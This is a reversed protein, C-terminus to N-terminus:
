KQTLLFYDALATLLWIFIGTCRMLQSYWPKLFLNSGYTTHARRVVASTRFILLWGGYGLFLSVAAYWAVQFVPMGELFVYRLTAPLRNM